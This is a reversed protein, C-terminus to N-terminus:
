KQASKKKRGRSRTEISHTNLWNQITMPSVGCEQAIKAMSNGNSEYEHRLWSENRYTNSDGNKPRISVTVLMVEFCDLCRVENIGKSVSCKLDTGCECRMNIWNIM